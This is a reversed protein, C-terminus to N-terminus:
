QDVKILNIIIFFLLINLIQKLSEHYSIGKRDDIELHHDM